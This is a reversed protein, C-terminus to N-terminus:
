TFTLWFYGYRWYKRAIKGINNVVELTEDDRYAHFFRLIIDFGFMVEVIIEFITM